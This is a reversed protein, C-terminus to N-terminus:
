ALEAVAQRVLGAIDLGQPCRRQAESYDLELLRQPDQPLAAALTERARQPEGFSRLYMLSRMVEAVPAQGAMAEECIGACGACYGERTAQAYRQLAQRDSASLRPRGLATAANAMLVTISTMQSCIAAIRQDEWVAAMKAQYPTFGKKLFRGALQLEGETDDAVPGGGQTKMATLGIGAKHCAAMAQQMAKTHMIRYNYTMMIGDIWGLPAAKYLCEEMNSHSSFGFLKIKGEKKMREAWRRIDPSNVESIDSIAHVFFLDVHDTNMRKLSTNLEESLGDPSRRTSKTVLFVQARTQPYRAFFRGIGEESRGGSYSYATDWYDVGLRLAQHLMLQNSVIDFIGGLSLTAVQVGTRGFPRRPVKISAAPGEAALAPPLAGAGALLSGAGAAGLAKLFGRRSQGKYQDSM